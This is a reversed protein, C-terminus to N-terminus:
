VPQLRDSDKTIGLVKKLVRSLTGIKFPKTLVPCSLGIPVLNPNGTVFVIRRQMDPAVERLKEYFGIGDLRPMEIDSLIADYSREQMAALAELGDAVGDARYGLGELLLVLSERVAKEDDIVLILLTDHM